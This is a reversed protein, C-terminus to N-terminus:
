RAHHRCFALSLWTLLFFGIPFLATFGVQGWKDIAHLDFFTLVQAHAACPLLGSVATRMSVSQPRGPMLDHRCSIISRRSTDLISCSRM